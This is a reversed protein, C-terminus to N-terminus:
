QILIRQRRPDAAIHSPISPKMYCVATEWRMKGRSQDQVSGGIELRGAKQCSNKISVSGGVLLM